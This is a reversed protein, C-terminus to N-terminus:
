IKTLLLQVLAIAADGGTQTPSPSIEVFISTSGKIAAVGFFIGFAEDGVNPIAVPPNSGLNSKVNQEFAAKTTPNVVSINVGGGATGYRCTFDNISEGAATVTAGTTAQVEDRTVYACPDKKAATPSAGAKVPVGSASTVSNNAGTAPSASATVAPATTGAAPSDGGCAALALAAITLASAVIVL